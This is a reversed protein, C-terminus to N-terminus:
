VWIWELWTKSEDGTQDLFMRYQNISYKVDPYESFVSIRNGDM